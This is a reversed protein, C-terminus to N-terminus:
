GAAPKTPTEAAATEHLRTIYTDLLARTEAASFLRAECRLSITTQGGYEAVFFAARTNRRIPPAGTIHELIVNGCVLRDESRPLRSHAMLRGM